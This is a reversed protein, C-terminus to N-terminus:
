EQFFYPSKMVSRYSSMDGDSILIHFQIIIQLSGLSGQVNLPCKTQSRSNVVESPEQELMLPRIPVQVVTGDGHIFWDGPVCESRSITILNSLFAFSM